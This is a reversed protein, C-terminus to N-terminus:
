VGESRGVAEDRDFSVDAPRFDGLAQEVDREIPEAVDVHQDVIGADEDGLRGDVVVDIIILV